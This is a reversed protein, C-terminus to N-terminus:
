GTKQVNGTKYVNRNEGKMKKDHISEIKIETYHLYSMGTIPNVGSIISNKDIYYGKTAVPGENIIREVTRRTYTYVEPVPKKLNRSPNYSVLSRQEPADFLMLQEYAEDGAVPRKVIYEALDKYGGMDYIPTYNVYGEGWADTIMIDAEPIRNVLIHVHLGGKKGVELRYIYKLEENYKKYRRKLRNIFNRFDKKLEKISKRTGKSYKLTVWLDDSNFNLKILRRVYNARNRLNQNRIQEPTVEKRPLRREGKAGYNGAYCYEYENSKDFRYIKKTHAM